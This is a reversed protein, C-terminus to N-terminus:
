PTVVRFVEVSQVDLDDRSIGYFRDGVVRVPQFDVPFTVTGLYHGDAGFVGWTRSGMDKVAVMRGQAVLAETSRLMRVWLSMRPGLALSTFTPFYDAFGMRDIVAQSVQAPVGQKRYMDRLGDEVARKDRETVRERDFPRSVISKLDGDPGYVKFRWADDMSTVLRGDRAADWVPDPAFQRIKPLGGTIQVSQGLGLRAVSDVAQGRPPVTVIPDGAQAVSDGAVPLRRQAVLLGAGTMDFRIPIGRAMDLQQGSVFTGDVDFRSIRQNALDPVIVQDDVVFVGAVNTGFEGPGSGPRGITRLYAGSGAFVRVNRAQADAVYINGDADVDIGAIRGFQHKEDGSLSGISLVGEVTWAQDASWSGDTPNKVLLVGASDSVTGAWHSDTESGSCAVFAVAPLVAWVGVLPHVYNRGKDSRM